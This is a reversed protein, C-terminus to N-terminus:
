SNSSPPHLISSLFRLARCGQRAALTAPRRPRRGRRYILLAAYATPAARHPRGRLIMQYWVLIRNIYQWVFCWLLIICPPKAMVTNYKQLLIILRMALLSVGTKQNPSSRNTLVKNMLLMGMLECVLNRSRGDSRNMSIIAMAATNNITAPM